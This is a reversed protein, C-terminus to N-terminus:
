AEALTSMREKLTFSITKKVLDNTNKFTSNSKINNFDLSLLLKGFCEDAFSHSILQVGEFNFVIFGGSKLSKEIELRLEQGLARTGLSSGINGFDIQM